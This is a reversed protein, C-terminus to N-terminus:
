SPKEIEAPMEAFTQEFGAPVFVPDYGFGATGRPSGVITGEIAGEFDRDSKERRAVRAGAFDRAYTFSAVSERACNAFCSRVNEKDSADEGPTVRPSFELREALADVELGSDDAVVLDSLYKSADLAKM